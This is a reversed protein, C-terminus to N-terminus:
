SEHRLRIASKTRQPCSIVSADFFKVVIAEIIPMTFRFRKDNFKNMVSGIVDLISLIQGFAGSLRGQSLERGLFSAILALIAVNGDGSHTM